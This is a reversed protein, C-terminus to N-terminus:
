RGGCMSTMVGAMAQETAGGLAGAPMSALM